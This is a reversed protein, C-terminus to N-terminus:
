DQDNFDPAFGTFAKEQEAETMTFFRVGRDLTKMLAMDDDSLAFDFVAINEAIHEADSSGPIAIYGMQINWRLLIQAPTRGYKAALDAVVPDAMLRTKNDLGGLPFWSEILTGYKAALEALDREAYYPHTEIQHVAPKIRANSAVQEFREASFDSLGISRVKGMDVMDEMARYADMYDGYQQHLLLLDVYDTGLRALTDDIARMADDYKYESPWLKTTLFVDERGAVGADFAKRLGRGVGRENMYINATDVLRYGDKLATEVSFEAQAPKLIYTGIGLKPITLGNNMTYTEM